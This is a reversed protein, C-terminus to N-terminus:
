HAIILYSNVTKPKYKYVILLRRYVGIFLLKNCHYYYKSVDLSLPQDM